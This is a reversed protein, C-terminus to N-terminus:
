KTAMELAKKVAEIYSKSSGTVGAVTEVDASNKEVFRKAMEENAAKAEKLPYTAYDKFKGDKGVEQLVVNTIKDDKITVYALAYGNEASQDSTALFTGDFYKKGDKEKSAKELARLVAEKYKKSSNTVGTYDDVDASNKEVFRKAMEENATKAEKFPYTSYDKLKGYENVEYLKVETIKDDKITVEAYAFGRSEPTADSYGIYTGDNYKTSTATNANNNTNSNTNNDTQKSCAAFLPILLLMSLVLALFKKM